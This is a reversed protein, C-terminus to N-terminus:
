GYAGLYNRKPIVKLIRFIIWSFSSSLLRHTYMDSGLSKLCGCNLLVHPVGGLLRLAWASIRFVNLSAM